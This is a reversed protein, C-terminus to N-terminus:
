NFSKPNPPLVQKMSMSLLNFREKSLIGPHVTAILIVNKQAIIDSIINLLTLVSDFSDQVHTILYELGDLLIISKTGQNKALFNEIDRLIYEPKPPIVDNGEGTDTIWRIEIKEPNKEVMALKDPHTRSLWLGMHGNKVFSNFVIQSYHSDKEPIIYGFGPPFIFAYKDYGYKDLTATITDNIDYNTYNNYNRAFIKLMNFLETDSIQKQPAFTITGNEYKLEAFSYDLIKLYRITEDIHEQGYIKKMIKFGDGVIKEFILVNFIPFLQMPIRTRIIKGDNVNSLFSPKVSVIIRSNFDLFLTWFKNLREMTYLQEEPTNFKTFIISEPSDFLIVCNDTKGLFKKLNKFGADSLADNLRLTNAGDENDAMRIIPTAKLGYQERIEQPPRTTICLGYIGSKVNEAFLEYCKDPQEEPIIYVYGKELLVAHSTREEAIPELFFLKYRVIAYAIIIGMLTMGVNTMGIIPYSIAPLIIDTLSAIILFLMTGLVVFFIQTKINRNTIKTYNWILIGLGLFMELELHILGPIYLTKAVAVNIQSMSYYGQVIPPSNPISLGNLVANTFFVFGIALMLVLFIKGYITTMIKNRTPFEFSFYLFLWATLEVGLLVFNHSFLAMRWNDKSSITAYEGASLIILSMMFLIWITTSRKKPGIKIFVM